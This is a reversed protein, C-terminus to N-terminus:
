NKKKYQVHHYSVMIDLSQRLWIKSSFFFFFFIQRGSNPGFTPLDFGFHPKEGNKSKPDNNKRLDCVIIAQLLKQCRTSTFGVSFIQPGLNPSCTGFNPWFNPEKGNECTHNM